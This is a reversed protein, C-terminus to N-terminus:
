PTERLAALKMLVRKAHEVHQPETRHGTGEPQATFSSLAVIWRALSTNTSARFDELIPNINRDYEPRPFWLMARDTRAAARDPTGFPGPGTKSNRRYAWPEPDVTDVKGSTLYESM